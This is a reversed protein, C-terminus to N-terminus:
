IEVNYDKVIEGYELSGRTHAPKWFTGTVKGFLPADETYTAFHGRVFHLAKKIGTKNSETRRVEARLPAVDLVKYRKGRQGNRYKRPKKCRDKLIIKKDCNLLSISFLFSWISAWLLNEAILAGIGQAEVIVSEQGDILDGSKDIPFIIAGVESFHKKGALFLTYKAVWGNAEQKENVVQDTHIYCGVNVRTFQNPFHIVQGGKNSKSPMKYELWVDQYPSVCRPFDTFEFHEKEYEGYFWRSVSDVRILTTDKPIDLQHRDLINM